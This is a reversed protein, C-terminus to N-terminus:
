YCFLFCIVLNPLLKRYNLVYNLNQLTQPLIKTLIKMILMPIITFNDNFTLFRNSVVDKLHQKKMRHSFLDFKRRGWLRFNNEPRNMLVTWKACAGIMASCFSKCRTNYGSENKM